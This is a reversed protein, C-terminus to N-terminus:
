GADSLGLADMLVQQDPKVKKPEADLAADFGARIDDYDDMTVGWAAAAVRYEIRDVLLM